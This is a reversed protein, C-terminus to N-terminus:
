RADIRFGGDAGTKVPVIVTNRSTVLPTGYHILLQGNAYQPDLDVPMQWRIQTLAQTRAPALATHQPNNGLGQWAPTQGPLPVLALLMAAAPLAVQFRRPGM